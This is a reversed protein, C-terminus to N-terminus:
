GQHSQTGIRTIMQASAPPKGRISPKMRILRKTPGPVSGRLMVYGNRVIGYRIFGGDPTVEAGDSGIKLIQKNFETRQHYGTQGMQPVTRRVYAPKWPGLNGIHRKKGTRSHKGKQLQVGWRKVPGQTGKGTTIAAVDIFDGEGFMDTVHYQTGLISKAYEFQAAADGGSILTEMVDSKKKPIGSVLDPMTRVIMRIEDVMGDQMAQEIDDFDHDVWAESILRLGYSDRRAYARIAAAHMPPTEIITIPVAIEMGATLSNPREDIMMVNSMGAKYGAFSQIKPEAGGM